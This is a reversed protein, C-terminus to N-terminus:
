LWVDPLALALIQFVPTRVGLDIGKGKASLDMEGLVLKELEGGSLSKFTLRVQQLWM